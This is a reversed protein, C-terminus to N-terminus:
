RSVQQMFYILKFDVSKSSDKAYSCKGERPIYRINMAQTSAALM